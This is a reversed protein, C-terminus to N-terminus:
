QSTYCYGPGTSPLNAGALRSKLAGLICYLANLM